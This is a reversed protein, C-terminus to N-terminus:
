FECVLCWTSVSWASSFGLCLIGFQWSHQCFHSCLMQFHQQEYMPSNINVFPILALWSTMKLSISILLAFFIFLQLAALYNLTKSVFNHLCCLLFSILALLVQVHKLPGLCPQKWSCDKVQTKVNPPSSMCFKHKTTKLKTNPRSQRLNMATGCESQIHNLDAISNKLSLLLAWHFNNCKKSTSKSHFLHSYHPDM